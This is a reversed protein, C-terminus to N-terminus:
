NSLPFLLQCISIPGPFYVQRKLTGLLFRYGNNLVNIWTKDKKFQMKSSLFGNM